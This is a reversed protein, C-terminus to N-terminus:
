RWALKRCMAQKRIDDIWKRDLQLWVSRRIGGIVGSLDIFSFHEQKLNTAPLRWLLYQCTNLCLSPAGSTLDDQLM